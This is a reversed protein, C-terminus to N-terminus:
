LLLQHISLLIADPSDAVAPEVLLEPTAAVALEVMPATPVELQPQDALAPLTPVDPARDLCVCSSKEATPKPCCPHSASQADPTGACAGAPNLLLIAIGLLALVMRVTAIRPM